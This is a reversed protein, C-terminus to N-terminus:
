YLYKDYTIEKIIRKARNPVDERAWKSDWAEHVVVTWNLENLGKQMNVFKNFGGIGLNYVMEIFCSRRPYSIKNLIKEFKSDFFNMANEIYKMAEKEAQEETITPKLRFYYYYQNNYHKKPVPAPTGHGWSWHNVDWYPKNYFGEAKKIRQLVLKKFGDQLSM